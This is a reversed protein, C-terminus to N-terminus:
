AVTREKVFMKMAYNTFAGWETKIGGEMDLPGMTALNAGRFVGPEACSATAPTAGVLKDYPPALSFTYSQLLYSLILRMELQAFNKGLCSRPSNTFPSFRESEPNMAARSSGVRMMEEPKFDRHPNFMDVDAGWLDPNRHRSWTVLNVVTGKPLLVPKGDIGTVEDDFQLQRYTGNPVSNWLRLTETICRDLFPLKSLDRYEPDRGNLEKFFGDIEVQLQQQYQPQRALEFLLWTMAHGTTDHGAFLILLANGYDTAAGYESTQLARL